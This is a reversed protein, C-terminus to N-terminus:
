CKKREVDIELLVEILLSKDAEDLLHEYNLNHFPQYKMLRSIFEKESKNIASRARFQSTAIKTASVGKQHKAWRIGHDIVSLGRAGENQRRSSLYKFPNEGNFYQKILDAVLLTAESNLARGNEVDDVWNALASAKLQLANREEDILLRESKELNLLNSKIFHKKFEPSDSRMNGMMFIFPTEDDM